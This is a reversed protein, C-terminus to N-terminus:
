LSMSYHQEEKSKLDTARIIKTKYRGRSFKILIKNCKRLKRLKERINLVVKYEPMNPTQSTGFTGKILCCFLYYRNVSDTPFEIKHFKETMYKTNLRQKIHELNIKILVYQM